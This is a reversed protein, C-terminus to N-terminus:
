IIGYKIDQSGPEITNTTELKKELSAQYRM